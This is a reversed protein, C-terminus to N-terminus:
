SLETFSGSSSAFQECDLGMKQAFNVYLNCLPIDRDSLNVYGRHKFGGGVILVPLQQNSHSHANGMGSSILVTTTDLLSQGNIDKTASLKELFKGVEKMHADEIALLQEVKEPEKGHHSLQHYTHTLNVGPITPSGGVGFDMTMVRTSDTQLALVALDFQNHMEVHMVSSPAQERLGEPPKPKEIGNWKRQKAMREELVRIATLYHDLRERDAHNLKGGLGKAEARVADIISRKQAISKDLERRRTEDTVFLRRFFDRAYIIRDPCQTGNVDYSIPTNGVVLKDFRTATGVKDAILQDLSITHRKSPLHEYNIGTLLTSTLSHGGEVDPHDLGRFVTYNGRLPDLPKLLRPTEFDLGTKEPFFAPNYFSLPNHLVVFRHPSAAEAASNGLSLFHPIPLLAGASTSQCLFRRRSLNRTTKM